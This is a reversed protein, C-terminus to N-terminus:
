GGTRSFVNLLDFRRHIVVCALMSWLGFYFMSGPREAEEFTM